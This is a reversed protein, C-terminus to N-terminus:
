VLGHAATQASDPSHALAEDTTPFQEGVNARAAEPRFRGADASECQDQRRRRAAVEAASRPPRRYPLDVGADRLERVYPGISSVQLDLAEAIEQQSRNARWMRALRADRAPKTPREGPEYEPPPLPRVFWDVTGAFLEAVDIGLAAVIRIATFIRFNRKGHEFDVVDCRGMAARASLVEQSIGLQRRARLANLGLRRRVTDEEDEEAALRFEGASPQWIIGETVRECRVNFSAALKVILGLRPSYTGRETHSVYSHKVEIAESLQTQSLGAQERLRAVNAGILAAIEDKSVPGADITAAAPAVAAADEELAPKQQRQRRRQRAGEHVERRAPARHPLDDGHERLRHVIASVGEPTTDLDAAIESATRDQHWLDKIPADLSGPAHRQAGGRKPPTCASPPPTWGIGALLFEPTVELSRALAMLKTITTERIGREILSLGDKGLGVSHALATQTLHRRERAARLNAGFIAAAEYRDGVPGRSPGSEFVSRGAPLVLFFGALRESQPRRDRSRKAIEGPNWYVGEAVTDISVGLSHALRLARAATPERAGNGEHQLAEQRSMGALEGLESGSLGAADRLRRLNGAVRGVLPSGAGTEPVCDECRSPPSGEGIHDIERGCERCRREDLASAQGPLDM